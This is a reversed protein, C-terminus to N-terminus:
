TAILFFASLVIKSLVDTIIDLATTVRLRLNSAKFETSFGACHVPIM